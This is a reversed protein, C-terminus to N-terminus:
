LDGNVVCNVIVDGFEDRIPGRKLISVWVTLSPPGIQTYEQEAQDIL